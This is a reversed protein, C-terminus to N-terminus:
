LLNSHPLWNTKPFPSPVVVLGEGEKILRSADDLELTDGDPTKLYRAAHRLKSLISTTRETLDVFNAFSDDWVESGNM